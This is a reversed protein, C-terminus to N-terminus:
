TTTRKLWTRLGEKERMLTSRKHWHWRWRVKAYREDWRAELLADSNRSPPRQTSTIKVIVTKTPIVTMVSSHGRTAAWSLQSQSTPGRRRVRRTWFMRSSTTWADTDSLHGRRSRYQEMRIWLRLPSPREFVSCREIVRTEFKVKKRRSPIREEIWPYARRPDQWRSTRTLQWSSELRRTLSRLMLITNHWYKERVEVSPVETSAYGCVFYTDVEASKQGAKVRVGLLRGPHWIHLTVIPEKTFRQMSVIILVANPPETRSEPWLRSKGNDWVDVVNGHDSTHEVPVEYHTRRCKATYLLETMRGPDLHSLVQITSDIRRQKTQAIEDWQHTDRANEHDNSRIWPLYLHRRSTRDLQIHVCEKVERPILVSVRETTYVHGRYM